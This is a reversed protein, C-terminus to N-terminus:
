LITYIRDNAKPQSQPMGLCSPLDRNIFIYVAFVVFLLLWWYYLGLRLNVLTPYVLLQKLQLFIELQFGHSFSM